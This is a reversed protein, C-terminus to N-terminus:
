LILINSQSFCFINCYLQLHSRLAIDDVDQAFNPLWLDSLHSVVNCLKERGDQIAMDSSFVRWFRFGSNRIGEVNGESRHKLFNFNISILLVVLLVLAAM